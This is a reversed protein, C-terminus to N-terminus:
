KPKRYKGEIQKFAQSNARSVTLAVTDNKRVVASFPINARQLEAAIKRGTDIPEVQTFCQNKALSAYYEPNVTQYKGKEGKGGNEQAAATKAIKGISSYMIDNLTAVDSKAVTLSVKGDGRSAASFAIDAASLAAMVEVAQKENM